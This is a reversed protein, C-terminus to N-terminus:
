GALVWRIREAFEGRVIKRLHEVPDSMWRDGQRWHHLQVLHWLAEYVELRSVLAPHAFLEPYVRRFMVMAGVHSAPVQGPPVMSRLLMDLEVDPPGIRSGEFDILGTIRDGDVVVNRFHLDTHVFGASDGDFAGLRDGIFRSTEALVSRADPRVGMAREILAFSAQPPAHYADAWRGEALVADVWENRMWSAMPLAHLRRMIAALDGMIRLRTAADLAPWAAQLNEGPLRELVLYEGGTARLGQAVVAPHPIEDPLHALVEAEHRFAAPFRGENLRVVHTPTLVVLNAFGDSLTLNSVALGHAALLARVEHVIHRSPNVTPLEM